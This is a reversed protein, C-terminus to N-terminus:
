GVCSVERLCGLHLISALGAMFLAGGGDGGPYSFTSLLPLAFFYSRLSPSTGTTSCDHKENPSLLLPLKKRYSDTNRENEREREKELEKKYDREGERESGAQTSCKQTNDVCLVDFPRGECLHQLQQEMCFHQQRLPQARLNSSILSSSPFPFIDVFSQPTERDWFLMTVKTCYTIRTSIRRTFIQTTGRRQNRWQDPLWFCNGRSSSKAPNHYVDGDRHHPGSRDRLSHRVDFSLSTASAFCHRCFDLVAEAKVVGNCLDMLQVGYVVRQRVASLMPMQSVRNGM